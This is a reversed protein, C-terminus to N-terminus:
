KSGSAAAPTPQREALARDRWVPREIGEAHQAAKRFIRDAIVSFPEVAVSARTDTEAAPYEKAIARAGFTEGDVLRFTNESRSTPNAIRAALYAVRDWELEANRLLARTDIRGNPEGALNIEALTVNHKAIRLDAEALALLLTITEILHFDRSRPETMSLAAGAAMTLAEHAEALESSGTWTKALRHLALSRQNLDAIKGLDALLQKPTAPLSLQSDTLLNDTAVPTEVAGSSQAPTGPEAIEAPLPPL